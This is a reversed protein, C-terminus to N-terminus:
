ISLRVRGATAASLQGAKDVCHGMKKNTSVTTTAKGTAADFYLAAGFTWAQGTTKQVEFVGEVDLEIEDGIAGAGNAIGVIEGIGVIDGSACAAALVATITGGSQIYNRM